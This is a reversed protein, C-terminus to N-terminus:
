SVYILLHNPYEFVAISFWPRSFLYIVKGLVTSTMCVSGSDCSTLVESTCPPDCSSCQLQEVTFVSYSLYVNLVIKLFSIIFLM